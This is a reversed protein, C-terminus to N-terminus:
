GKGFEKAAQEAVYKAFGLIASHEREPLNEMLGAVERTTEGLGEVQVTDRGTFFTIPKGVIECIRLTDVRLATRGRELGWYGM